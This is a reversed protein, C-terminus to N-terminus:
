YETPVSTLSYARLFAEEDEPSRLLLVATFKGTRKERFGAVREGTCISARIVPTQKEPDYEVVPVKRKKRM